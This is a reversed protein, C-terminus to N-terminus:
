PTRVGAQRSRWALGRHTLRAVALEWGAAGVNTGVLFVVAEAAGVTSAVLTSGFAGAYYPLEKAAELVVYGTGSARRTVRDSWGRHRAADFCLKSLANTSAGTAALLDANARLNSRLGFAWAGYSAALVGVLAPLPVSALVGTAVLVVGFGTAAVDLALASLATAVATISWRILPRRRDPGV